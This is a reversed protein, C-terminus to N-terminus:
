SLYKLQTAYLIIFVVTILIGFIFGFGTFVGMGMFLFASVVPVIDGLIYLSFGMKKRQRMQIAGYICLVSAVLGLLLIPVRNDLMKLSTGVPDPGMMKKVFGPMQDMKDQMQVTKEYSSRANAFGYFSLLLSLGNWILTLITLVNLMDPLKKPDEQWNDKKANTDTM